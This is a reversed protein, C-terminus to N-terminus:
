LRVWAAGPRNHDAVRSYVHTRGEVGSLGVILPLFAIPSFYSILASARPSVGDNHRAFDVHHEVVLRDVELRAVDGNLMAIRKKMHASSPNRAQM